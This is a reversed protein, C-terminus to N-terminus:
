DRLLTNTVQTSSPSYVKDFQFKKRNGGQVVVVEQDATIELCSNSTSSRRCRCFVRINGQLEHLKNYLSKRELTQKRYLSRLEEVEMAVNQKVHALKGVTGRLQELQNQMDTMM